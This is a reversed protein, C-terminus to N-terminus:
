GEFMHSYNYIYKRRGKTIHEFSTEQMIDTRQFTNLNGEPVLVRLNKFINFTLKFVM